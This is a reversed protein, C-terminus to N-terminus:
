SKRARKAHKMQKTSYREERRLPNECLADWALVFCLFGFCILLSCLLAADLLRHCRRAGFLVGLDLSETHSGDRLWCMKLVGRTSFMGCLWAQLIKTHRNPFRFVFPIRCIQCEVKRHSSESFTYSVCCMSLFRDHSSEVKRYRKKCFTYYNVVPFARM